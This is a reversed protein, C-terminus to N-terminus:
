HKVIIRVYPYCFGGELKFTMTYTGEKQPAKADFVFPGVTQGPEVEPLEYTVNTTIMKTGGSYRLDAGGGWRKTGVNSIWLKVDFNTKPKFTTNDYPVKSPVSCAYAPKPLATRTMTPPVLTLTPAPTSTPSVTVTVTDPATPSPLAAQSAQFAEVTKAVSTSIRAQIEEASPGAVTQPACATLALIGLLLVRKV